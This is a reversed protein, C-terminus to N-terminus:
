ILHLANYTSPMARGRDTEAEARDRDRMRTERREMRQGM